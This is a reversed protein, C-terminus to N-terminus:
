NLSFYWSTLKEGFLFLSIIGLFLFPVFPIMKNKKVFKFWIGFISGWFSAFFLILILDGPKFYLGLTAMVLADGLGIGKKFTLLYILYISIFGLLSSLFPLLKKNFYFLSNLILSFDRQLFFKNQLQLFYFVLFWFIGIILLRNDIHLTKLDYLAEVFIISLPILYYIYELLSFFTIETKLTQALILCWLGTIIEVAPYRLSIKKKCELCRGKQLIFSLVPILEYWKLIKKCFPCHSRTSIFNEGTELRLAITNLLSGLFLGFIFFIM